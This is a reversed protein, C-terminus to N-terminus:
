AVQIDIQKPESKAKLPFSLTLVGDVLKAQVAESDVDKPLTFRREFRGAVREGVLRRSGDPVEIHREGRVTLVGEDLKVDLNDAKVGPLDAQVRLGDDNREAWFRPAATARDQLLGEFPDAGFFWHLQRRLDPSLFPSADASRTRLTFMLMEKPVARAGSVRGCGRTASNLCSLSSARAVTM